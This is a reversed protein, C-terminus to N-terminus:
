MRRLHSSLRLGAPSLSKASAILSTGIGRRQNDPDVYLHAIVDGTMAMFGIVCGDVEAVLISTEVLIVNRFYCRDEESTHGKRAQFEPFATPRARRWVHNVPGFDEPRYPRIIPHMMNGEPAGASREHLGVM